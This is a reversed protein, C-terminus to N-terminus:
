YRGEVKKKRMNRTLWMMLISATAMLITIITWVSKTPIYDLLIGM